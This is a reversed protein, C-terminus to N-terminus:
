PIREGNDDHGGSTGEDSEDGYKEAGKTAASVRPSSRGAIAISRGPGDITARHTATDDLSPIREPVREPALRETLRDVVREAVPAGSATTTANGETGAGRVSESPTESPKWATARKAIWQGVDLGAMAALFFLWYKLADLWFATVHAAPPRDQRVVMVLLAAGLVLGTCGALWVTFLIRAPTTPFDALVRKLRDALGDVALINISM